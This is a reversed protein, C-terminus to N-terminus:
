DIKKLRVLDLKGSNSLRPFANLWIIEKPIQYASIKSKLTNKLQIVISQETQQGEIFLVLKEGLKEDSKGILIIDTYQIELENFVLEIIPTIMEPHLKIGGSNIVNDYRGKLIFHNSDIINVMDNTIIKDGFQNIVLCNRNDTSISVDALLTFHDTQLKRYAIHSYTETMGYTMYINSSIRDIEKEIKQLIPAGGLLVNKVLSLKKKSDEDLLITQLQLPVLSLLGINKILADEINILPNSSPTVIYLDSQLVLARIVMMFGAISQLSLCCYIPDESDLKLWDITRKASLIAKSKEIKMQKPKGTSGSTNIFLNTDNEANWWSLIQNLQQFNSDTEFSTTLINGVEYGNYIIRKFREQM